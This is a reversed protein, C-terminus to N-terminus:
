TRPSPQLSGGGQPIFTAHAYTPGEPGPRSPRDDNTVGRTMGPLSRRYAHVTM